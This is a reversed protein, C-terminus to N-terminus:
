FLQLKQLILRVDTIGQSLQNRNIKKKKGPAQAISEKKKM